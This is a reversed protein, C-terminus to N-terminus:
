DEVYTLIPPHQNSEVASKCEASQTEFFQDARVLGHDGESHARFWCSGVHPGPRKENTINEIPQPQTAPVCVTGESEALKVVTRPSQYNSLKRVDGAAGVALASARFRNGVATQNVPVIPKPREGILSPCSRLRPGFRNCPLDRPAPKPITLRDLSGARSRVTIQRPQEVITM